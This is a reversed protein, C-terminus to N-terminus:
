DRRIFRLNSLENQSKAVTEADFHLWALGDQSEHKRQTFVYPIRDMRNGLMAVTIRHRIHPYRTSLIAAAGLPTFRMHIGFIFHTFPPGKDKALGAKASFGNARGPIDILIEEDVDLTIDNTSQFM